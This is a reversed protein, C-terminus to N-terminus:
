GRFIGNFTDVLRKVSNGDRFMNVESQISMLRPASMIKAALEKWNISGTGPMIHDDGYGDNDHIHCTVIYPLLQDVADNCYDIKGAWSNMIYEKYKSEEKGPPFAIINAHGSDYCVGLAPTDFQKSYYVIESTANSREFSNEIALIIGLKEAEPLLKELSDLVLPRIVDNPTQFVVSEFAGIHITCTKCGLDAAYAMARKQDEIMQNRRGRDPCALDMHEGYPMHADNFNIGHHAKLRLWTGFSSPKKLFGELISEVLVFDYAGNQKFEDFFSDYMVEPMIGWNHHYVIPVSM